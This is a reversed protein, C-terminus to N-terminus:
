ELLGRSGDFRRTVVGVPQNSRRIAGKRAAFGYMSAVIALLHNAQYPHEEMSLHLRAIEASSVTPATRKGFRPVFYKKLVAEYDAATRAKRKPKVHEAIFRDVLSAGRV